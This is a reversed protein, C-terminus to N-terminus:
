RMRQSLSLPLWVKQSSNQVRTLKSSCLNRCRINSIRVFTEHKTYSLPQPLSDGNALSVLMDLWPHEEFVATTQSPWQALLPAIVIDFDARTGWYVGTVEFVDTLTWLRLSLEKPATTQSYTQLAQFIAVRYSVHDRPPQGFSYTFRVGNAPAQLTQLKFKTVIGFSSGAGRLAQLYYFVTLKCIWLRSYSM